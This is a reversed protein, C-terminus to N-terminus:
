LEQKGSSCTFTDAPAPTRHSTYRDRFHDVIDVTLVATTLGRIRAAEAAEVAGRIEPHCCCLFDPFPCFDIPIRAFLPLLSSPPPRSEFLAAVNGSPDPPRDYGATLPEVCSPLLINSILTKFYLPSPINSLLRSSTAKQLRTKTFVYIWRTTTKYLKVFTPPTVTRSLLALLALTDKM